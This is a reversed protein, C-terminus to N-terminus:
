QNQNPQAQQPQSGQELTSIQQKLKEIENKLQQLVQNQEQGGQNGQSYGGGGGNYYQNYGQRFSDGWNSIHQIAKGAASGLGKMINSGLGENEIAESLIRKTSEEILNALQEETIRYKM